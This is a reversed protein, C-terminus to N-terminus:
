GANRACCEIIEKNIGSIESINKNSDRDRFYRVLQYALQVDVDLVERFVSADAFHPDLKEIKNERAMIHHLNMLTKLSLRLGTSETIAAIDELHGSIKSLGSKIEDLGKKLIKTNEEADTKVHVSSFFDMFDIHFKDTIRKGAVPHKYTIYVDFSKPISPDNVIDVYTDYFFTLRKKPAIFKAGHSFIRPYFEDNHWVLEPVFKFKVDIAPYDSINTLELHVVNHEPIIADLHLIPLITLARSRIDEIEYHEM